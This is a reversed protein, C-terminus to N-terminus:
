DARLYLELGAKPDSHVLRYKSRIWQYFTKHMDSYKFEDRDDLEHNSVLIRAPLRGELRAIEQRDFAASRPVLPYIEWIGMPERLIAHLGPLNPLALFGRAGTPTPQVLAQVRRFSAAFEASVRLRDGSGDFSALDVPALYHNNYFRPIGVASLSVLAVAALCAARLGKARSRAAMILSAILLPYIGLALHATDARAFAYHAYPIACACCALLSSGYRDTLRDKAVLWWLGIAAPLVILAIFLVGSSLRAVFYARGLENVDATWPWPVPLAVNTSGSQLIDRISQVFAPGFGDVVVTAVLLPAFGIATGAVAVALLRWQVTAQRYQLAQAMALLVFATAGYVGHNRGVIAMLGLVIGAAFWSGNTRHCAAHCLAAVIIMSAAHDFSKYYPWVWLAMLCASVVAVILKLRTSGQLTSVVAHLGAAIGIAQFLAAALRASHIGDSGSLRMVLATWYYRLPDYSMFDRLPVEGALVRQAGYWYFGEDSLDMGHRWTLAFVLASVAMSTVLAVLVDTPRGPSASAPLKSGQTM